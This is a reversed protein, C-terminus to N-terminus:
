TDREEDVLRRKLLYGTAGLAALSGGVGFGPSDDAATEDAAGAGAGMTDDPEIAVSDGTWEDYHGPTGQNVRAGDSSGSVGADLAHTFANM